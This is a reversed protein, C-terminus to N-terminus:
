SRVENMYALPIAFQAVRPSNKKIIGFLYDHSCVLWGGVMRYPGPRLHPVVYVGEIHTLASVGAGTEVNAANVHAGALVEGAQDTVRGSITATDSQASAILSWLFLVAAAVPPLSRNM